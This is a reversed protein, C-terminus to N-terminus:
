AAASAGGKAPLERPYARVREELGEASRQEGANDAGNDDVKMDADYLTKDREARAHDEDGARM